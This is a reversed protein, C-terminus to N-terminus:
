RSAVANSFRNGVNRLASHLEGRILDFGSPFARVRSFRETGLFPTSYQTIYPIGCPCERIYKADINSFWFDQNWSKSIVRNFENIQDGNQVELLYARVNMSVNARDYYVQVNTQTYNLVDIWIYGNWVKQVNAWCYTKSVGTNDKEKKYDPKDLAVAIVFDAGVQKALSTPDADLRLVPLNHSYVLKTYEDEQISSIVADIIAYKEASASFAADNAQIIVAIRKTACEKYQDYLRQAESKNKVYTIADLALEAAKKCNNSAAFRAADVLKKKGFQDNCDAIGQNALKPSSLYKKAITYLSIAESHNRGCVNDAEKLLQSGYEDGYKKSLEQTETNKTAFDPVPHLLDAAQKIQGEKYMKKAKQLLQATLLQNREQMCDRRLDLLCATDLQGLAVDYKQASVAQEKAKTHWAIGEKQISAQLQSLRDKDSSVMIAKELEKISALYSRTKALAKASQELQGTAAERTKAIYIGYTPYETNHYPIADIQLGHTEILKKLKDLSEALHDFRQEMKHKEFRGSFDFLMEKVTQDYQKNVAPHDQPCNAIERFAADYHQGKLLRKARCYNQFAPALKYLDTYWDYKTHISELSPDLSLVRNSISAFSAVKSAASEDSEQEAKLQLQRVRNLYDVYQTHLVSQEKTNLPIRRQMTKVWSEFDNVKLQNYAKETYCGAILMAIAFLGVLYNFKRLNM